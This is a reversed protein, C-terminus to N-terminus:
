WVYPIFRYKVKAKYDKYGPLEKVLTRGELITRRIL